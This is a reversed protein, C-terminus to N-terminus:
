SCQFNALEPGWGTSSHLEVKLAHANADNKALGSSLMIQDSLTASICPSQLINFCLYEEEQTPCQTNTVSFKFKLWVKSTIADSSSTPCQSLIGCSFHFVSFIM